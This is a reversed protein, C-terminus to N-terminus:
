PRLQARAKQSTEEPTGNGSVFCFPLVSARAQADWTRCEAIRREIQEPTDGRFAFRRRLEKEDSMEIYLSCVSGAKGRVETYAHLKVVAEIVLIPLYFVKGELAEDIAKRKTAYRNRHPSVEWLFERARSLRGLEEASVYEYEGPVDSPRPARTTVSQLPKAGPLMRMLNKVLTTKGSASPGTISCIM